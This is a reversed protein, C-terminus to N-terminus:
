EDGLAKRVAALEAAIRKFAERADISGMFMPQFAELKAVLAATATRLDPQALDALAFVIGRCFVEGDEMVDFTAHPIDTEYSWCPSDPACWRARIRKTRQGATEEHPCDRDDCPRYIGTTTLYVTSDDCAGAEDDMAGRFEVLDDSAGFVVVLGAAKAAREEDPAVEDGRERRNLYAALGAATMPGSSNPAAVGAGSLGDDAEMM